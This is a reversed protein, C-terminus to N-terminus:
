QCKETVWYTKGNISLIGKKHCEDRSQHVTYARLITELLNKGPNKGTFESFVDDTDIYVLEQCQMCRLEVELGYVKLKPM